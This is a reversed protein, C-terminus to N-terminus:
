VEPLKQEVKFHLLIAIHMGLSSFQNDIEELYEEQTMPQDLSTPVKYYIVWRKYEKFNLYKYFEQKATQREAETLDMNSCQHNLWIYDSSRIESFTKETENEGVYFTPEIIEGSVSDKIMNEYDSYSQTEQYDNTVSDFQYFTPETRQYPWSWHIQVVKYSNGMQFDLGIEDTEPVIMWESILCVKKDENLTMELDDLTGDMPITIATQIIGEDTQDLITISWDIPMQNLWLRWDEILWNEKEEDIKNLTMQITLSFSKLVANVESNNVLNYTIKGEMGPVLSAAYNGNSSMSVNDYYSDKLLDLVETHELMEEGNLTFSWKAVRATSLLNNTRKYAAFSSSITISAFVGCIALLILYRIIWHKITRKKFM